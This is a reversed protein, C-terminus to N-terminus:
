ACPEYTEKFIDTKCPYKEGRIGTIIYDGPCVRMKREPTDIEGHESLMHRCTGCTIIDLSVDYPHVDEKHESLDVWKYASIVIPRQRYRKVEQEDSM